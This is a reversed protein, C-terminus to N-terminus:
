VKDLSYKGETDEKLLKERTSKALSSSPSANLGVVLTSTSLGM